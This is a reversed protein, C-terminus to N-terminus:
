YLYNMIYIYKSNRANLVRKRIIKIENLDVHGTDVM